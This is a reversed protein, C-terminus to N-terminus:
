HISQHCIAINIKLDYKSTLDIARLILNIDLPNPEISCKSFHVPVHLKSIIRKRSVISKVRINFCALLLKPKNYRRHSKKKM